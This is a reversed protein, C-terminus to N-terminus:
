HLDKTEVSECKCAALLEEKPLKLLGFCTLIIHTHRATDAQMCAFDSQTSISEKQGAMRGNSLHWM